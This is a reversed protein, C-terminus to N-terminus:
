PQVAPAAHAARYAEVYDAQHPHEPHWDDMRITIGDGLYVPWAPHEAWSRAIRAACALVIGNRVLVGIRDAVDAEFRTYFRKEGSGPTSATRWAEPLADLQEATLTVGSATAFDAKIYGVRTWYDLNRYTIGAANCVERSTLNM